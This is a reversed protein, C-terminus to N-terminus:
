LCLLRRINAFNSTQLHDMLNIATDKSSQSPYGVPVTEPFVRCQEIADGGVVRTSIATPFTMCENLCEADEHVLRENSNCFLTSQLRMGM